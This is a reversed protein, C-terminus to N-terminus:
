LLEEKLGSGPHGECRSRRVAARNAVHTHPHAIAAYTGSALGRQWHRLDLSPTRSSRLTKPDRELLQDRAMRRDRSKGDDAQQSAGRFTAESTWLVVERREILPRHRLAGDPETTTRHNQEFATAASSTTSMKVAAPSLVGSM